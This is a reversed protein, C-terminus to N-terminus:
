TIESYNLLMSEMISRNNIFISLTYDTKYYYKMISLIIHSDSDSSSFSIFYDMNLSM